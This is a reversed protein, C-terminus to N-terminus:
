VIGLKPYDLKQRRNVTKGTVVTEVDCGVIAAFREILYVPMASRREYKKYREVPVGLAAAMQDQTFGRRKRLSAVREIYQRALASEAQEM